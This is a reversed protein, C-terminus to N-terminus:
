SLRHIINIWHPPFIVESIHDFRHPAGSCRKGRWLQPALDAQRTMASQRVRLRVRVINEAKQIAKARHNASRGRGSIPIDTNHGSWRL